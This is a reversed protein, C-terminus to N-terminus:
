EYPNEEMEMQRRFEDYKNGMRMRAKKIAWHLDGTDPLEKLLEDLFVELKDM